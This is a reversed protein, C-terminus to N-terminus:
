KEYWFITVTITGVLAASMQVSLGSITNLPAILGRLDITTISAPIPMGNFIVAGNTPGTTCPSANVVAINTVGSTIKVNGVTDASCATGVSTVPFINITAAATSAIIIHDYYISKTSNNNIVSIIYSNIAPNVVVNQSYFAQSIGDSIVQIPLTSSTGSNPTSLTYSQGTTPNVTGCGSAITQVAYIDVTDPNGAQTTAGSFVFAMKAAGNSRVFFTNTTSAPVPSPTGVIALSAYRGTNHSYDTVASDGSQFATVSFSHASTPNNNVVSVCFGYDPTLPALVYAVNNSSWPIANAGGGTANPNTIQINVNRANIIQDQAKTPFICLLILSILIILKTKM